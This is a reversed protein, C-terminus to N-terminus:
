GSKARLQVAAKEMAVDVENRNYGKLGVRFRRHRLEDPGVPNASWETNRQIVEELYKDVEDVDYGKLALNFEETRLWGLSNAATSPGPSPVQVTEAATARTQSSASARVRVRFKESFLLAGLLSLGVMATAGDGLLQERAPFVFGQSYRDPMALVMLVVDAILVAFFFRKSSDPNAIRAVRVVYLISALVAAAGVFVLAIDASPAQHNSEITFPRSVGFWTLVSGFIVVAATRRGPAKSLPDGLLGSM